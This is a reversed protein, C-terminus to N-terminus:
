REAREEQHCSRSTSGEEVGALAQLIPLVQQDQRFLARRLRGILAGAAERFEGAPSDPRAEGLQYLRYELDNMLEILAQQDELLQQFDAPRFPVVTSM